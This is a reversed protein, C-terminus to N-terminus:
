PVFVQRFRDRDPRGTFRDHVRGKLLPHPTV